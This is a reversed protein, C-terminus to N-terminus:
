SYQPHGDIEFREEGGVLMAQEPVKASSNTLGLGRTIQGLVHKQPHAPGRDWHGAIALESGPQKLNGSVEREIMVALTQSVWLWYLQRLPGRSLRRLIDVESDVLSKGCQWVEISVDEEHAFHRAQTVSLDCARAPERRISDTRADM